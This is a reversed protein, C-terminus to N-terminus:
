KQSNLGIQVTQGPRLFPPNIPKMKVRITRGDAESYPAVELIQAEFPPQSRNELKARVKSGIPLRDILRSPVLGEIQLNSVDVITLLPYGPMAMEGERAKLNTVLGSIPSELRTQKRSDRVATVGQEAQDVGANAIRIDQHSVRLAKTRGETATLLGEKAQRVGEEASEKEKNAFAIRYPVGNSGSELSRIGNQATELDAEAIRLQTRAGEIDTRAVGGVKALEELDRLITRARDVGAQAKRLGVRATSLDSEHAQKAAEVALDAKKRGDEALKLLGKAKQLNANQETEIADRGQLAKQYQQKAVKLAALANREQIDFDATDFEVLPTGKTVKMGETVSLAIVKQPIRVTIIAQNTAIVRAPLAYGSGVDASPKPPRTESLTVNQQQSSSDSPANNRKDSPASQSWIYYGTLALIGVCASTISVIRGKM